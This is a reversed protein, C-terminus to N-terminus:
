GGTAFRSGETQLCLHWLCAQESYADELGMAQRGLVQTLLLCCTPQKLTTLVLPLPRLPSSGLFLSTEPLLFYVRHHAPFPGQDNCSM